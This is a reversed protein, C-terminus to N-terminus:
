NQTIEKKSQIKNRMIKRNEKTKTKRIIKKNKFDSNVSHWYLGFYHHIKHLFPEVVLTPYLSRQTSKAEDTIPKHEWHRLAQSHSVLQWIIAWQLIRPENRKDNSCSIQNQWNWFMNTEPQEFVVKYKYLHNTSIM